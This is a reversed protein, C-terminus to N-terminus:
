AGLELLVDTHCPLGDDAPCHCALRKGRLEKLEPREAPLTPAEYMSSAMAAFGSIADDISAVRGSSYELEGPGDTRDGRVIPQGTMWARHLAVAARRRGEKDARYGLAVAAWTIWPGNVPFPNGWKSPRGVYVVDDPLDSARWQRGRRGEPVFDHLSVRRPNM